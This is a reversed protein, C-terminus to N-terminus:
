GAELGWQVCRCSRGAVLVALWLQQPAAVGAYRKRATPGEAASGGSRRERSAARASGREAAMVTATAVLVLTLMM